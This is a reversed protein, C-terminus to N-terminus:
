ANNQAFGSRPGPEIAAGGLGKPDRGKRTVIGKARGETALGMERRHKNVSRTLAARLRRLAQAELLDIDM